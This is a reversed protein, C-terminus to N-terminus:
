EVGAILPRRNSSFNYSYVGTLATADEKLVPLQALVHPPTRAPYHIPANRAARHNLVRIQQLSM